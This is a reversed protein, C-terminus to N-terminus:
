LGRLFTGLILLVFGIVVLWFKNETFVGLDAYNAVIGLVGLLLAVLWTVQKPPSLKM